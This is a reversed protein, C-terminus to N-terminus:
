AEDEVPNEMAGLGTVATRIVDGHRLFRPPDFSAGMGAPTGTLLIDGPLLSMSSSAWELLGPVDVLMDSAPADQRLEGNIWGQVRLAGPDAVEDATVLWPGTPCFSDFSKARVIQAYLPSLDLDARMVDRATLDQACMYGAVHGLADDRPIRRGARGVVVALEAEYDLEQAEPPLVVPDFPGALSTSPRLGIPPKRPPVGGTTALAEEVQGQYNVGCVVIKPPNPVPPGLRVSGAEVGDGRAAEDVLPRLVPLLGLLANMDPAAVGHARLLPALPVITEGGASLVGPSEAGRPGFSVLRV